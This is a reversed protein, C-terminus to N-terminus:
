LPPRKSCRGLGFFTKLYNIQRREDGVRLLQAQALHKPKNQPRQTGKKRARNARGKEWFRKKEFM